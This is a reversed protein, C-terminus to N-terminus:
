FDDLALVRRNKQEFYIRIMTPQQLSKRLSHQM